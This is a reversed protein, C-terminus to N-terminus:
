EHRGQAARMNAARSELEEIVVRASTSGALITPIEIVDTLGWVVHVEAKASRGQMVQHTGAIGEETFKVLTGTKTLGIGEVRFTTPNIGYYTSVIEAEQRRTMRAM